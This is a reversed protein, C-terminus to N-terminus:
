IKKKKPDVERDRKRGNERYISPPPRAANTKEPGVERRPRSEGWSEECLKVGMGSGEM